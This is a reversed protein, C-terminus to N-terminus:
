SGGTGPCSPWMLQVKVNEEGYNIQHYNDWEMSALLQYVM